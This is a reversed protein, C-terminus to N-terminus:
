PAAPAPNGVRERKLAAQRQLLERLDDKQETSLSATGALAEIRRNVRDLELQTFIARCDSRAGEFDGEVQMERAALARYHDANESDALVELLAGAHKVPAGTAARWIELIQRDVPSPQDIFENAIAGNFERALEPFALLSMQLKHKLDHVEPAEHRRSADRRAPLRRWPQLGFLSEVEAVGTRGAQALQGVLQMRLAGANMSEILPRAAAIMAARDEPQSLDRDESV